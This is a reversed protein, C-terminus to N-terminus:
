GKDHHHILLVSCPAHTSVREATSGLMFREYGTMDKRGMVILDVDDAAATQLVQEAPYGNLVIPVEKAFPAPLQKQYASLETFKQRRTTEMESLYAKAVEEDKAYDTRELLWEPLEAGFISEVVHMLRGRTTSPWAVRGVFDTLRRSPPVDDLPLLVRLTPDSAKGSKRRAILVPQRAHRALTQSVSGMFLSRIPGLGRAGVVILDVNYDDALKLMEERADGTGIVTESKTRFGEPLKSRAEEIVSSAMAQRTRETMSGIHAARSALKVRPPACYLIIEDREPSLWLTAQHIAEWGGESGDVGILVKM